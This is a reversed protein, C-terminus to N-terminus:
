IGISSCPSSRESQPLFIQSITAWNTCDGHCASSSAGIGTASAAQQHRVIKQDTADVAEQINVSAPPHLINAHSGGWLALLQCGTGVTSTFSKHISGVENVLWRGAPLTAFKWSRKLTTLNPGQVGCQQQNPPQLQQQHKEM